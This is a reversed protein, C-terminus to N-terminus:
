AAEKLRQRLVAIAVSVASSQFHRPDFFRKEVAERLHTPLRDLEPKLKALMREKDIKEDLGSVEGLEPVDAISPRTNERYNRRRVSDIIAGRIRHRAYASFPTGGHKAPKYRAAVELLAVHGVGILDELDFSAPLSKQVSLAISRVLPLNEAVLADRRARLREQHGHADIAVVNGPKNSSKVDMYHWACM